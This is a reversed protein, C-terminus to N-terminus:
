IASKRHNKNVTYGDKNKKGNKFNQFLYTWLKQNQFPDFYNFRQSPGESEMSRLELYNQHAYEPQGQHESVQDKLMDMSDEFDVPM